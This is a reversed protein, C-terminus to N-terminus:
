ANREKLKAEIARASAEFGDQRATGYAQYAGKIEEETLGQWERRPPTTFLSFEGDPMSFAAATPSCEILTGLKNITLVPEDQEQQALAARLSLEAKRLFKRTPSNLEWHVDTQCLALAELVQDLVARDVTITTM